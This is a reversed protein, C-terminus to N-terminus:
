PSPFPRSGANACNGGNEPQRASSSNSDGRALRTSDPEDLLSSLSSAQEPPRRKAELHDLLSWLLAGLNHPCRHCTVFRRYRTAGLAKGAPQPAHDIAGPIDSAAQAARGPMKDAM